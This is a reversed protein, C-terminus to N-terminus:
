TPLVLVEQEGELLWPSGSHADGVCEIDQPAMAEGKCDVMVQAMAQM